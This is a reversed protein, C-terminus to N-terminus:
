KTDDGSGASRLSGCGTCYRHCALLHGGGIDQLQPQVQSCIEMREPCRRHFSCGPPLNVPSPIEGEPIIKDPKCNEEEDTAVPISSLLMRTYPHRPRTFFEATDAVECLRGLYMIAVRAAVNRMLSLDHTIFLYSLAMEKQLQLLRTIVNAQMSVDLASTPEDLIILSPHAALARAISVLQREGGGLSRPQKEKYEPPLGVQELLEGVRTDWQSRPCDSHLRLALEFSQKITRRPNFSGGPDQFVLQIAGKEEVSRHHSDAGLSQGNFLIQGDTPRYMGAVMYAVTSKGSGSEGVLGLTEGRRIHLDVGDVAKVFVNHKFPFYKKLGKIELINDDASVTRAKLDSNQSM